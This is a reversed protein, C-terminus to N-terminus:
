MYITLFIDQCFEQPKFLSTIGLLGPNEDHVHYSARGGVTNKPQGKCGAYKIISQITQPHTEVWGGSGQTNPTSNTPWSLALAFGDPSFLLLM